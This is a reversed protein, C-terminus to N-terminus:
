FPPEDTRAPSAWPDAAAPSSTFGGADSNGRQTRNVKATAYKLSPGIEELEMEMVSRKEGASTEYERQKLRGFAIVRMGKTLTEVVHEAPEGWISCRMFVSPGDKWENSQRDFQRPTSAITLNAVAKGNPLFRMEPDGVLNGIIPLTIENAM